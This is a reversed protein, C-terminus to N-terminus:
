NVCSLRNNGLSAVNYTLMTELTISLELVRLNKIDYCKAKQLAKGRNLSRTEKDLSKLFM